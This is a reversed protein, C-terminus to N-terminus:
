EHSGGEPIHRESYAFTRAGALRDSEKGRDRATNVTSVLRLDGGGAQGASFLMRLVWRSIRMWPTAVQFWQRRSCGLVWGSSM